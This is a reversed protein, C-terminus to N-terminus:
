VAKCADENTSKRQIIIFEMAVTQLFFEIVPATGPVELLAHAQTTTMWIRPSTNDKCTGYMVHMPEMEEDHDAASVLQVCEM